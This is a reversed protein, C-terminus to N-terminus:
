EGGRAADVARLTVEGSPAITREIAAQGPDLERAAQASITLAGGNSRLLLWIVHQADKADERAAALEAEAKLYAERIFKADVKADEHQDIADTLSKTLGKVEAKLARIEEAQDAIRSALHARAKALDAAWDIPCNTAYPSDADLVALAMADKETPTM